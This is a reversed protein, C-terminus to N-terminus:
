LKKLRLYCRIECSIIHRFYHQSELDGSFMRHLHIQNLQKEPTQEYKKLLRRKKLYKSLINM